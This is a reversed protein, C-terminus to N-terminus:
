FVRFNFFINLFCYMQIHLFYFNGETKNENLTQIFKQINTKLQDIFSENSMKQFFEFDLTLGNTSLKKVDRGDTGYLHTLM